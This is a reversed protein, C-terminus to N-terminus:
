HIVMFTTVLFVFMLVFTLMYLTAGLTKIWHLPDSQGANVRQRTWGQLHPHFSMYIKVIGGLVQTYFLIFPFLPHWRGATLALMLTSFTRSVMVWLLYYLIYSSDILLSSAIAVTPGILTTWMSIRQDIITWWTFLGMRWPGLLIARGTNRIMNGYWRSLLALTPGFFGQGEPLEEIPHVVVDPLYLMNWGNELLTFWTSKDDGTVMRITGLRWHHIEDKELRQIFEPSITLRARFMSFRGTLVLLKRSLSMSCMLLHRQAMRLRYWERTMWGGRVTPINDTTVAGVDPNAMLMRATAAIAGPRVLTDGDMLITVADEAPNLRAVHHLARVMTDRKGLGRQPEFMLGIGGNEGVTRNFAARIVVADAPDTVCAIVTATTGMGMIEEFVRAYVAFNVNGSMRYSPVVVFIHSPLPAEAAKRRHRPYVIWQYILARVFHLGVWLWRWTGIVGFAFFFPVVSAPVPHATIQAYLLVGCGALLLWGFATAAWGSKVSHGRINLALRPTEPDTSSM